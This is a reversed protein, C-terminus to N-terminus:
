ECMVGALAFDRCMTERTVKWTGDVLVLEGFRNYFSTGYGPVDWHYKIAARTASEFALGDVGVVAAAVQDKFTGTALQNWYDPFNAPDDIARMMQEQSEDHTGHALLFADTAAQTAAAVDAPQEAGPAPLEQPASCDATTTEYSGDNALRFYPGGTQADGTGLSNGSGDFAELQAAKSYWETLDGSAPAVLVAVGDVPEMEDTAGGPFTARIRAAGDTAQAIVVWSPAQENAGLLNLTGGVVAGGRLEAYVYGSAIGVMADDSVDAQVYRNPFCYPPPTWWPPGAGDPTDMAAHFVRITTGDHDRTFARALQQGGVV